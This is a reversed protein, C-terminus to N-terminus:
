FIPARSFKAFNMPFFVQTATVKYYGQLDNQLYASTCKVLYM